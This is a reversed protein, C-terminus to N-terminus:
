LSKKIKHMEDLEHEHRSKHEKKNVNRVKKVVPKMVYDTFLSKKSKSHGFFYIKASLIVVTVILFLIWSFQVGKQLLGDFFNGFLKAYVANIALVASGSAVMLVLFQPFSTEVPLIRLPFFMLLRIISYWIMALFIDQGVAIYVFPIILCTVFQAISDKAVGMWTPYVGCARSGLNLVVSFVGGYFGGLNVAVILSFFDVFDALYLIYLPSPMGVGPLRSWFSVLGFLFVTSYTSNFPLFVLTLVYLVITIVIIAPWYLIFM